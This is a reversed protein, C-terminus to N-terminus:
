LKWKLDSEKFGLSNLIQKTDDNISLSDKSIWIETGSSPNGRYRLLCFQKGNNLEMVAIKFYDLDDYSETFIVPLRRELDEPEYKIVAVAKNIRPLWDKIKLQNFKREM